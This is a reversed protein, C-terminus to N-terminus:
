SKRKATLKLTTPLLCSSRSALYGVSSPGSPQFSNLAATQSLPTQLALTDGCMAFSCSPWKRLPPRRTVPFPFPNKQCATWSLWCMTTGTGTGISPTSTWPYISGHATRCRFLSSSDLLRTAPAPLEGALTVIACMNTWMLWCAKGTIGTGSSDTHRTEVQIPLQFRIM